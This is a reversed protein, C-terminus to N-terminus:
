KQRYLSYVEMGINEEKKEGQESDNESWVEHFNEEWAMNWVDSRTNKDNSTM